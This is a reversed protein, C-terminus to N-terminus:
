AAAKTARFKISVVTSALERAVEMDVGLREASEALTVEGLTEGFNTESLIEVEDFGAGRITQLYEERVSAGGVCGLYAEMNGLVERPLPRTLVIDSVLMRGGPKLARHAEAFVQEKDPSLNIVCNSIILDATADEVPLAEIYGKRFEVNSYNGKAVNRRASDLMEDTMDVGIVRGEPGTAHAALFCDIGAGSGLDVVVDGPKIEAFATPNGCGLGLNADAPIARLEEASYGIAGSVKGPMSQSSDCVSTGDCCGTADKARAIKAYGRKVEERLADAAANSTGESM